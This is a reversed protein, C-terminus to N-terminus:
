QDEREGFIAEIVEGSVEHARREDSTAVMKTAVENLHRQVHNSIIASVSGGDEEQKDLWNVASAYVTALFQKNTPTIEEVLKMVDIDIEHAKMERMRRLLDNELDELTPSM